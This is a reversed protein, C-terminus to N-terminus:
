AEVQALAEFENPLDVELSLTDPAHPIEDGGDSEILGLDFAVDVPLVFM